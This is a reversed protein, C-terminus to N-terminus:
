WHHNWSNQHGIEMRNYCSVTTNDSSRVLQLVFAKSRGNMHSSHFGTWMGTTFSANNLVSTVSTKVAEYMTPSLVWTFCVNTGWIWHRCCNFFHLVTLQLWHCWAVYEMVTEECQKFHQNSRSKTFYDMKSKLQSVLFTYVTWRKYKMTNGLYHVTQLCVQCVVKKRNMIMRFGFQIREPLMKVRQQYLVFISVM